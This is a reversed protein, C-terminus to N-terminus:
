GHVGRGSVEGVRADRIGKDIGLQEGTVDESQSPALHLGDDDAAIRDVLRICLRQSGQDGAPGLSGRCCM